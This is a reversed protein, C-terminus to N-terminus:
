LLFAGGLTFYLSWFQRFGSVAAPEGGSYKAPGLNHAALTFEPVIALVLGARSDDGQGAALGIPISLTWQQRDQTIRAFEPGPRPAGDPLRSDAITWHRPGFGLYLNILPDIRMGRFTSRMSLDLGARYEPGFDWLWLQKLVAASMAVSVPQHRAEEVVACRLEGGVRVLGVLTGLECEGFPSYSFGFEAAFVAALAGQFVQTSFDERGAGAAFDTRQATNDSYAGPSLSSQAATGAPTAIRAQTYTLAWTSAATLRGHGAQLVAGTRPYAVPAACAALVTLAM